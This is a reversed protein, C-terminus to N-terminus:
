NGGKWSYVIGPPCVARCSPRASCKGVDYRGGASEPGPSHIQRSHLAVNAEVSEHQRLGSLVSVWIRGHIASCARQSLHVNSLARRFPQHSIAGRATRTRSSFFRWWCCPPRLSWNHLVSILGAAALLLAAYMPHRIWSYVGSTVLTHGERVRVHVSWNRGLDAHSRWFLWGAAVLM